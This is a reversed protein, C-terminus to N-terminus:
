VLTGLAGLRASSSRGCAGGESSWWEAGDRLVRCVDGTFEVKFADGSPDPLDKPGGGAVSCLWFTGPEHAGNLGPMVSLSALIHSNAGLEAHDAKRGGHLDKMWSRGAPTVVAASATLAAAAETLERKTDAKRIYTAAFGGEFSRLPRPSRIRHVRVHCTEAAILWTRVEIDSWPTWRSYAVGDQVAADYAHERVRYRRQDDSLALMSDMGGEQPTASSAPVSFGFRQSYAFKSYKQPAHRPWDEVEQGPNLATTDRAQPHTVAVLRAGAITHIARRKPLPAEGARWFPHNESLALPLFAKMGWYPSGSSNYSEAMLLNPYAYGITLLGTESFIPQKLWWRLHRLYLGKVVPWPLAEVPAFALGGWFAGQAFRYTLSRGFPLASGDEAFYHIFDNAFLRARELYRSSRTPDGDGAVRAYILAYFHFAMPIYYDGVHGDRFPAGSDGDQYWGNGLYFEDLRNLDAELAAASWPQGVARLGINVLVRFFLWNSQVLKVENVHGLWKAFRAQTKADLKHWLERPALLLATGFAAAEVSRQDYDGSWGWFEPHEPNTGSEIGKRWLDWHRFKGGGAALPVLGWLPRAFGELLGAPDGYLARNEGLTVLARGPSFHPIVPEALERALRQVDARTKLPNDTLAPLSTM